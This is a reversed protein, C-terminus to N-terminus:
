WTVINLCVIPLVVGLKQFFLWPTIGAIFWIIFPVGELPSTARLGQSFVFWYVAVTIIPNLLAWVLGFYSGVYKSSFDKRALSFILGRMKMTDIIFRFFSKM